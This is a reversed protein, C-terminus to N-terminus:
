PAPAPSRAAPARRSRWRSTLSVIWRAGELALLVLFVDYPVRYRQEAFFFAAVLVMTVVHFAAVLPALTARRVCSAIGALALPVLVGVLVVSSAVDVVKRWVIDHFRSEPWLSDRGFLLVVNGAWRGVREGRTMYGTEGRRAADLKAGDGVYGDFTLQHSEGLEAKPPSEFMFVRPVGDPTHWTAVVRGYDTDAWLRTMTGNDSILGWRHTLDHYRLAGWAVTATLVGGAILLRTLRLKPARPPRRWLVVLGLVTFAAMTMVIQPRVLYAVSTAAGTALAAWTAGREVLKVLLWASLAIAGAYPQESSFFGAFALLPYWIAMFLGVAIAVGLRPVIRYALLVACPAVVAGWLCNLALVAAHHSWGAVLMEAAYVMHAGPPYLPCQVTWPDVGAAAAMAEHPDVFRGPGLFPLPNDAGYAAQMARNVYGAMDSLVNDFPSCVVGVWVLRLAYAFLFVALGAAVPRPVRRLFALEV